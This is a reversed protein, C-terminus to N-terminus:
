AILEDILKRFEAEESALDDQSEYGTGIRLYKCGFVFTPVSGEPNYKQYIAIEDQPLVGEVEPTLLDDKKDLQWHYAVIDGNDVYEKVTADFTDKIWNCHPCTSTSFMRIVPKGDEMCTEDGTADFTGDTPSLGIEDGSDSGEKYLIEVNMEEKLQDVYAIQAEQSKQGILFQELDDHMEEYSPVDDSPYADKQADYFEKLEEETVEINSYLTENLHIQIKILKKFKELDMGQNALLDIIQEETLNTSKLYDQYIADVKDDSVYASKIELITQPILVSELYDTKTVFSKYGDPLNAYEADLQENTIVQNGVKAAVDASGVSSKGIGFIIFLLAAIVIVAIVTAGLYNNEKKKSTEKASPKEVSKEPTSAKKDHSTNKTGAKSKTSKKKAM